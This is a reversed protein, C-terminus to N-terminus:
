VELHKSCDVWILRTRTQSGLWAVTELALGVFPRPPPFSGEPFTATLDGLRLKEAAERYAAHFWGYAELLERRTQRTACHFGPAPARKM